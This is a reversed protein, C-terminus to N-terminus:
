LCHDIFRRNRSLISTHTHKKKKKEPLCTSFLSGVVFWLSRLSAIFTQTKNKLLFCFCFVLACCAFMEESFASFCGNEQLVFVWVFTVLFCSFFPLTLHPPARQGWEGYLRLRKFVVEVGLFDVFFLLLFCCCVVVFAVFFLFSFLHLFEGGGGGLFNFCRFVFVGFYLLVFACFCLFVFVCVHLFM